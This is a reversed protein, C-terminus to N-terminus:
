AAVAVPLAKARDALYDVAKQALSAASFIARKDAKLCKLWNALYSAHDARPEASIGLLGCFFAAGLEAVLEEFAYDPSGFRSGKIRDLRAHHGTWHVHEHALTSYYALPENFSNFTPMQIFDHSPSYFAREGGHRLNAAIRKFFHDCQEIRNVEPVPAVTETPNFRAPLNDCQGANFVYYAKLFPITEDEESGDAAVTTKKFTNAYVVMTGSEGKRVCGGYEIAQKFSLWYPSTYGMASQMVYLSVVNVGRYPEGNHRLPLNTGDVSVAKWPKHWPATGTELQAIITDTIKAYIDTAM